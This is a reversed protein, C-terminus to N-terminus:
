FFHRWWSRKPTTRKPSRPAYIPLPSPLARTTAFTLCDKFAAIESTIGPVTQFPPADATSRHMREFEELWAERYQLLIRPPMAATNDFHPPEFIAGSWRTYYEMRSNVTHIRQIEEETLPPFVTSNM